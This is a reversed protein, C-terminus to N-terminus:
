QVAAEVHGHLGDVATVERPVRLDLGGRALHEGGVMGAHRVQAVDGGDVPGGHLGHVDQGAAVRALREAM